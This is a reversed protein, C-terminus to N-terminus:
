CGAVFRINRRLGSYKVRKIASKKFLRNFTDESLDQWVKKTMAMLDPSPLFDDINHPKVKNNWPCVDQCIDCGFIGNNFKKRFTEPIPGKHEITWYSICRRSDIIKPSLIANTPCAEICKTCSGCFDKIPKDYALGVDIILEGIFVFSGHEPSILNANKGVWGAGARAAWARELVPASDVFVRGEHSVIENRITQQLKNLMAKIVKHYDRGYAYKSVVLKDKNSQKEPPFYNLLLVIVSKAGAVLKGPDTRKEFHNEMYRMSAHMGASLWQKLQKADNALYHVPAIKCDTFGLKAAEQKIKESSKQLDTKMQM